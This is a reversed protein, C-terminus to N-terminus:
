ELKYESTPGGPMDHVIHYGVRSVYVHLVTRRGASRNTLRLSHVQVAKWSKGTWHAASAGDNAGNLWRLLLFLSFRRVRYHVRDV